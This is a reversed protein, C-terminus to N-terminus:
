AAHALAPESLLKRFHVSELLSRQPGGRVLGLEDFIEQARPDPGDKRFEEVLWERLGEYGDPATFIRRVVLQPAVTGNW